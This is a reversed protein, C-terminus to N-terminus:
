RWRVEDKQRKIEKAQGAPLNPFLTLGLEEELSEVTVFHNKWADGQPPTVNPMRVAVTYWKGDRKDKAAIAKWTHSPIASSTGGRNSARKKELPLVPGTVIYLTDYLAANSAWQREKKEFDAWIGGNQDYDQPVINTFYFTTRNLESTADRSASPLMHGRVMSGIYSSFLEAQASAELDPDWNWADTRQTSGMCDPYLPYAVWLPLRDNKSYYITYNRREGKPSSGGGFYSDPAFHRILVADPHGSGSIPVEMYGAASSPVETGGSGPDTEGSVPAFTLPREEGTARGKEDWERLTVRTVVLDGGTVTVAVQYEHGQSLALTGLKFASRAGGAEMTVIHSGLNDGPYLYVKSRFAGAEPTAESGPVRITGRRSDYDFTGTAIDYKAATLAGVLTVVPTKGGFLAKAAEDGASTVFYVRPLIREGALEIPEGSVGSDTLRFVNFRASDTQVSLDLDIAFDRGADERYPAYGVISFSGERPKVLADGAERAVYLADKFTYPVNQRFGTVTSAGLLTGPRVMFLGLDASRLADPIEVTPSDSLASVAVRVRNILAPTNEDPSTNDDATRLNCSALALLAALFAGSVVGNDRSFLIM